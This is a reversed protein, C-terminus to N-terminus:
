PRRTGLVTMVVARPPKQSADAIESLRQDVSKIIFGQATLASKLEDVPVNLVRGVDVLKASQMKSLLGHIPNQRQELSAPVIFATAALLTLAFPALITKRRFYILMASWNKYIHLGAVAVLAMALWEHLESVIDKGVHFFMAIGSGAVVVFLTATIATTYKNLLNRMM